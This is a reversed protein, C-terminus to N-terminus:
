SKQTKKHKKKSIAPPAKIVITNVSYGSAISGKRVQAYVRYRGNKLIKTILSFRSLTRTGHKTLTQLGASVWKNTSEKKGSPRTAKQVQFLVVVGTIAPAVTGYLRVLGSHGSTRVGFTVHVTLPVKLVGSLLPRTSLTAVRFETSASLNTVRFSFGGLNNTVAPLGISTFAQLYPYQSAQLTVRQNAANPGTLTGSLIFPQGYVATAKKPLVFKLRNGGARFTRDKGLSTGNGNIAVLRYHYTASAVLGGITQGVKVKATGSGVPVAPTESGYATTPGYQFHYSTAQGNPYVTGTLEASTRLVRKAGGTDARPGANVHKGKAPNAAPSVGPVALAVSAAAVVALAPSLRSYKM